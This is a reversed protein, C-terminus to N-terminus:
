IKFKSQDSENNLFKGKFANGCSKGRLLILETM